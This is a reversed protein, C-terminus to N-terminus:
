NKKAVRIVNLDGGYLEFFKDKALDMAELMRASSRAPSSLGQEWARVTKVSVGLLEAFEPQSLGSMSRIKKVDKASYVKVPTIEWKHVKTGKKQNGKAYEKAEDLSKLLLDFSDNDM